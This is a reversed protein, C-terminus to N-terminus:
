GFNRGASSWEHEMFGPGKGNRERKEKKDRDAAVRARCLRLGRIKGSEPQAVIASYDLNRYISCVDFCDMHLHNWLIPLDIAKHRPVGMKFTSRLPAGEGALHHPM